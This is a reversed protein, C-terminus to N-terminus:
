KLRRNTRVIYRDIEDYWENEIAGFVQDETANYSREIFNDAPMVGRSLKNKRTFREKTGYEVLHGHWGKNIGSKRAGVLLAIEQPVAITGLSRLLTGGRVSKGGKMRDKGIPVNTKMANLLPRSAKRYASLFIKRQDVLSLEKFFDELIDLQSIDAKVEM